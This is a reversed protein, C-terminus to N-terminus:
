KQMYGAFFKAPVTANVRLECLQYYQQDLEKWEDYLAKTLLRKKHESDNGGLFDDRHEEVWSKPLDFVVVIRKDQPVVKAHAGAGLFRAEGGIVAFARATFPELALSVMGTKKDLRNLGEKAISDLFQIDTGHYVRLPNADEWWGINPTGNWPIKKAATDELFQSFTIM